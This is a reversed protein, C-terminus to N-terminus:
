FQELLRRLYEREPQPRRWQGERRRLEDLIQRSRQIEARNPIRTTGDDGFIRGNLPHGFPDRPVAGTGRAAMQEEAQRIGDQLDQVAVGQADAAQSWAGHGLAEEAEGMAEAAQGLDDNAPLKRILDELGHRLARQEGAAARSGADPQPAAPGPQQGQRFSRDLLEQQRRALGRMGELAKQAAPDAGQRSAASLDAMLQSMQDLMQRLADRAGSQALGAMRDLMAKLEDAGVVRDGPAAAGQPPGAKAALEQIMRQVAARYADLLRQIEPAPAGSALAKDLAARAGDVGRRAAGLAGEEIRLAANWLLSQIEPLDLSGRRLDQEALALALFTAPDGGFLSPDAAIGAVVAAAQPANAADETVLKRQEVLARAVPNTFTREPLTITLAAGGAVQGDTDEAMPRISVPLGAWPSATLDHWSTAHVSRPHPGPLPLAMTLSPGALDIRRIEVWAKAIGYDDSGDVSVQLRGREGAEPPRSFEISPLADAVVEIPWAAVDHFMQHVALRRGRDLRAEIRQSGGPQRQFRTAEGDVVLEAGGWGGTLAALVKSGAPVVVPKARGRAGGQGAHLLFPPLGTYAPPTIWVEAQAAFGPLGVAPTVARLLHRSADAGGIVVAIVLLLLVAARLGLPDRGAMGPSPWNLRLSEALLAMRGRHAQWLAAAVPDVVGGALSDALAALPRHSLGSDRELRRAAEDPRPWAFRAAARRGLAALAAAFAALVGLHLWGPLLPLVDLLALALFLGALGLPPVLLPWLREWGLVWCALRMRRALRGDTAAAAPASPPTDQM